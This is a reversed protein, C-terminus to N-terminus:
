DVGGSTKKQHIQVKTHRGQIFCSLVVAFKGSRPFHPTTENPSLKLYVQGVAKQCVM